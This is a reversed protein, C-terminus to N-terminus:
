GKRGAQTRVLRQIGQAIFDRRDEWIAQRLKKLQTQRLRRKSQHHAKLDLAAYQAALESAAMMLRDDPVVSDLFGADVASVPSYQESLLVAREFHGSRLRQRCIEIAAHPVTLGIAVENAVIRFDGQAGIRYDGSLLLFAGMAIAHGSCAILVPTPFDLLRRSLEFGGILMNYTDRVGTKLIRLDFGASFIGPRGTLIVVANAAEAKDLATNLQRLMTPSILNRGGDDMTLRAVGKTLSYRVIEEDNRSM